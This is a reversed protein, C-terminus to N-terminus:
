GRSSWGVCPAPQPATGFGSRSRAVVSSLDPSWWIGWPRCTRSAAFERAKSDLEILPASLRPAENREFIAAPNELHAILARGARLPSRFGIFLGQRDASVELAEINLGGKTKVDRVAAAEALLSDKSTLADKLGEFVQAKAVGDGDVQFRVLRERAKHERGEDDRSHSTIAYVFGARDLTVGELDDLQWFDSFLELLGPGLSIRKIPGERDITLVSFPHSKEDEVVLFRGDPLQQIGSPEYFGDLPRFRNMPLQAVRGITLPQPRSAAIGVIM